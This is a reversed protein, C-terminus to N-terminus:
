RNPGRLSISLVSEASAEALAAAQSSSVAVVLLAGDHGASTDDPRPVTVVPVDVVVPGSRSADRGSAYVDISDGVELLRVVAADAIRLPAAVLGPGYGAVLAEGVLRRDTVPEGGRVPAALVEGLLSDVSSTTGHPTVAEPVAVVRLDHSRLVAGGPLDHTVM